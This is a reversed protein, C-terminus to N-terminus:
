PPPTSSSGRLRQAAAPRAKREDQWPADERRERERELQRQQMFWEFTVGKGKLFGRAALIPKAPIPTVQIVGERLEWHLRTGYDIALAERITKPIVTQGRAYVSSEDTQANPVDGEESPEGTQYRARRRVM